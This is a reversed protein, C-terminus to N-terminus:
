VSDVEFLPNGVEVDQDMEVLFKTIVGATTTRVEADNKASELTIVIEDMDVWDGVNKDFQKVTAETVSEGISGLNITEKGFTRLNRSLGLHYFQRFLRSTKLLM